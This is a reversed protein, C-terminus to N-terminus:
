SRLERRIDDLLQESERAGILTRLMPRLALLLPELDAPVLEAPAKNLAKQSFVKLANKATHPGLFRGLQQALYETLPAPV